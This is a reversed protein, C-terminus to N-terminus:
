DGQDGHPGGKCINLDTATARGGNTSRDGKCSMELPLMPMLDFGLSRFYSILEGNHWDVLTRVREVGRRRFEELLAEGLGRGIGRHRFDTAVGLAKIWGTRAGGGFEWQRIEGVIFGVLEGELAAGLSLISDNEEIQHSMTQAFPDLTREFPQQIKLIAPLDERRLPRITLGAAMPQWLKANGVRRCRVLGKAKLIELYKAATHRVVGLHDALEETHVEGRRQLVELIKEEM